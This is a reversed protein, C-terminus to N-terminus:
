TVSVYTLLMIVWRKHSELLMKLIIWCLEYRLLYRRGNVLRGRGSLIDSWRHMCCRTRKLRVLASTVRSRRCLRVSHRSATALFFVTQRWLLVFTLRLVSCRLHSCPLESMSMGCECRTSLPRKPLTFFSVDFIQFSAVGCKM